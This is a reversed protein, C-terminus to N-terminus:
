ENIDRDQSVFGLFGTHAVGTGTVTEQIALIDDQAVELNAATGSLTMAREDGASFGTTSTDLTAIVTTGTGDSGKNVLSFTRYNGANAVIATPTTLSAALITGPFPVKLVDTNQTTGATGQAPIQFRHSRSLGTQDPM